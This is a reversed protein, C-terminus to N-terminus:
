SLLTVPTTPVINITMRRAENVGMGSVGVRLRGTFGFKGYSGDQGFYVAFDHPDGELQKLKEYDAKVYNANFTKMENATIGDIYCYSDDTLTTVDILEPEGILDPIDIVDVLKTYTSSEKIMLYTDYSSTANVASSAM